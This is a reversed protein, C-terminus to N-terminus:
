GERDLAEKLHANQEGFLVFWVFFPLSNVAQEARFILEQEELITEPMATWIDIIANLNKLQMDVSALLNHTTASQEQIQYAPFRHNIEGFASLADKFHTNQHSISKISCQTKSRLRELGTTINQFSGKLMVLSVDLHDTNLTSMQVVANLKSGTYKLSFGAKKLM